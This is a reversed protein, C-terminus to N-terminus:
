TQESVTTLRIERTQWQVATLAPSQVASVGTAPFLVGTIVILLAPIRFEHSMNM